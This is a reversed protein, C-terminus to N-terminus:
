KAVDVTEVRPPSGLRRALIAALVGMMGCTLWLGTSSWSFIQLGVYPGFVLGLAWTLGLAGMYRGRLHEPALNAVFASNMNFSLIEGFTLLAICGFLGWIGTAIPILMVSLAVCSYGAAMAKRHRLKQIYGTLPLEFLVVLVGNMSLLFGYTAASFGLHNVQLPFTSSFQQFIFGILFTGCLAHLLPKDGRMRTWAEVWGTTTKTARPVDRIAYLAVCGFLASTAADGIFLWLFSRDALFGATAPGFAFGANIALRYVAFATVRQEPTVLDAILASAAPRYLEASFGTLMAVVILAPLTNAQSLSLMTAAGAFMSLIITRRRGFTDALHGGIVSAFLNGIGYSGLALGAEVPAFGRRTMYLSLIPIVFTGFRNLFMGFSLVWVGRPLAQLRHKLDNYSAKM